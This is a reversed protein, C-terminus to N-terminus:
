AKTMELRYGVGHVTMLHRPQAPDPELKQRLALIQNDVTRTTPFANYGWVVELFRERTVTRRRARRAIEPHRIGERDARGPKGEALVNAQSISSSTRQIRDAGSRCSGTEARRLLARVRALLERSSFPKL